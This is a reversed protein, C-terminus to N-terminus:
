YTYKQNPLFWELEANSGRDFVNKITPRVNAGVFEGSNTYYCDAWAESVLSFVNRAELKDCAQKMEGLSMGNFEEILAARMDARESSSHNEYYDDIKAVFRDIGSMTI